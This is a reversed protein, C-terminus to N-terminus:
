NKIKKRKEACRHKSLAYGELIYKKLMEKDM